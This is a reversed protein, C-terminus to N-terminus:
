PFPLYFLLEGLWRWFREGFRWALFAFLLVSVGTVLALRPGDEAALRFACALGLLLGLLGGCGLRVGTRFGDRSPGEEDNM